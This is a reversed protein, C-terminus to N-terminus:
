NRVRESQIALTGDDKRVYLIKNITHQGKAKLIFQDDRRFGNVLLKTGRKFWSQDVVEGNSKIQKNYHSYAGGYTKCLVTGHPTVLTFTHKDNNKDVVTGIITHLQYDNIERDRWKRTGIVIPETPLESYRSVGYLSEDVGDLEHKDSYFVVSEMEWSEPTGSAYKSWLEHFQEINFKKIFDETDMIEKMKEMHSDYEKKFDKESIYVYKEDQNVVSDSTFHESFFEQAIKDLKLIRNKPSKLVEHVFKKGIIYKRFNFLEEYFMLKEDDKLLGLRIISPFNQMTLKDKVDVEKIIFKKMTEVTPEFGKFCGAKILQLMHNRQILKQQYIREYFDEFSSYPRNEIITHVIEENVGAIGNLAFIIRNGDLDPTFELDAQNILPTEVKVGYEKINGIATAIKGFERSKKTAGEELEASGSNVTLCATYWILPSYDACIALNSIGVISYAITHLTSFGYEKMRGIQVEWIYDLLEKRTGQRKGGEYFEKEAELHAEPNKKAIAKRLRNAGTVSLGAIRSDMSLMMATEQEAAVGFIKGLYEEMISVEEKNLGYSDMEDYWDQINNKHRVFTDVPSEGGSSTMLRILSNVTAMEILNQPKSKELAQAMIPTDFQFLDPVKGSSLWKYYEPKNLDMNRPSFYKSFTKRLSGQWEILGEKLMIEISKQIKSINNVGLLDYKIAGAYQIDDLSYQSIMTGNPAKMFATAELLDKDSVIVGGAHISRKDVLGEISMATELLKDYKKIENVFETVKKKGEEENGHVCEHLTYNQGRHKPILSSLYNATESDIGLGRCATKIASKSTTTGFTAVNVVHTDGFEEKLRQFVKGRKEPALDLDIDLASVDGRSKHLHRWHPMEVGMELPNVDTIQLLYCILFGAASGRGVGVISGEQLSTDGCEDGWAIDVIRKVTNYYSTMPMGLDQSIHWLEELEVDIRALVEHFKEKTISDNHILDIYGKEVLHLLYRDQDHESTAIKHIYEYQDYGQEFLHMLEFKPLKIEPITTPNGLSYDESMKGILLTNQMAANVTKKDLYSLKEYIESTTHLYTNAYFAAVERDGEKANLFAEHVFADEPRLYHADSTLIIPLKLEKSFEVLKENVIKQEGDAGPQLELFFNGEGFVKSCWLLFEKAKDFEGNLIHISSESGLCASSGILENPYQQLIEELQSKLTPTREMLGTMFSQSWAQSSLRRLAEHGKKSKSILLFHPFKTTGGVYNDRVEELSDVLYIENGYLLRFDSPIKGSKKMKAVFQDAVPHSSLCEHDSICVGQKGMEVAKMILKEVSNTTDLLRINSGRDTHNHLEIMCLKVLSGKMDTKMKM